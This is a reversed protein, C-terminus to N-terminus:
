AGRAREFARATRQVPNGDGQHRVRRAGRFKHELLVQFGADQSQEPPRRIKCRDQEILLQERASLPFISLMPISEEPVVVM